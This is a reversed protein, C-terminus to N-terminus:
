NQNQYFKKFNNKYNICEDHETKEIKRCKEKAIMIYKILRMLFM